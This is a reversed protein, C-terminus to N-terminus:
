MLSCNEVRYWQFPLLYFYSCPSSLPCLTLLFPVSSVHRLNRFYLSHFYYHDCGGEANDCLRRCHCSHIELALVASQWKSWVTMNRYTHTYKVHMHDQLSNRRSQSNVTQQRNDWSVSELMIFVLSVCFLVTHCGTSIFHAGTQNCCVLLLM